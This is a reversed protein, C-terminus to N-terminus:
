IKIKLFYFKILLIFNMKPNSKKKNKKILVLLLLIETESEEKGNNKLKGQFNFASYSSASKTIQNQEM